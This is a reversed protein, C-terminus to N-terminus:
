GGCMVVVTVLTFLVTAMVLVDKGQLVMRLTHTCSVCCVFLVDVHDSFDDGDSLCSACVASLCDGSADGAVDCLGDCTGAGSDAHAENTGLSNLGYTAVWACKTVDQGKANDGHSESFPKTNKGEEDSLLNNPPPPNSKAIRRWGGRM